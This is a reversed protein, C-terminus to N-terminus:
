PLEGTIDTIEIREWEPFERMARNNLKTHLARIAKGNSAQTPIERVWVLKDNREWVALRLVTM